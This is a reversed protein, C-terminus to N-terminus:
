LIMYSFFYNAASPLNYALLNLVDSVTQLEQVNHVLEDLSAAFFSAISVILFVQIFLFAFYFIQVFEARQSGTKAGRFRALFDLIIPILVLLIGLVVALLVGAVAKAINHVTNNDKLFSLWQNSRILNDLQSLAATWAVPIAWLFIMAVVTVFVLGSRLWEQWWSFAMNDWDVDKPLIENM